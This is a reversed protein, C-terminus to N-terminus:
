HKEKCQPCMGFLQVESLDYGTAEGAERLVDSWFPANGLDMIRGCKSCIVHPHPHLVADFHEPGNVVGIARVLGAEKLQNLNRYVTGLSINPYDPKLKEYIWDATPHTDTNMLCELIADRNKSARMKM